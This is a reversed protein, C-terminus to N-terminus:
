SEKNAEKRFKHAFYGHAVSSVFINGGTGITWRMIDIMNHIQALNNAIYNDSVRAAALMLVVVYPMAIWTIAFTSLGCLVTLCLAIYYKAM